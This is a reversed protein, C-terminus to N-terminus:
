FNSILSLFFFFFCLWSSTIAAGFIKWYCLSSYVKEVLMQIQLKRPKRKVPPRLVKLLANVLTALLSALNIGRNVRPEATILSESTAMSAKVVVMSQKRKDGEGSVMKEGSVGAAKGTCKVTTFTSSATSPNTVHRLPKSSTRLLRTTAMTRTPAKSKPTNPNQNPPEHHKIAHPTSLLLNSAYKGLTDSYPSPSNPKQVKRKKQSIGWTTNQTELLTHAWILESGFLQWVTDKSPSKSTTTRDKITPNSSNKTLNKYRRRVYRLLAETLSCYDACTGIWSRPVIKLRTHVPM